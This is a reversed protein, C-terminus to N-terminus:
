SIREGIAIHRPDRGRRWRAFDRWYWRMGLHVPFSATSSTRSAICCVTPNRPARMRLKRALVYFPGTGALAKVRMGLYVVVLDPYASLDVTRRSVHTNM